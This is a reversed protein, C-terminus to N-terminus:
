WIMSILWLQLNSETSVSYLSEFSPLKKYEYKLPVLQWSKLNFTIKGLGRIFCSFLVLFYMVDVEDQMRETDCIMIMKLWRWCLLLQYPEMLYTFLWGIVASLPGLGCTDTSPLATFCQLYMVCIKLVKQCINWLTLLRFAKLHINQILHRKFVGPHWFRSSEIRLLILCALMSIEEAPWICKGTTITADSAM